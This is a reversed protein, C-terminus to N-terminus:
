GCGADVGPPIANHGSGIVMAHDFQGGGFHASEASTQCAKAQQKQQTGEHANAEGVREWGGLCDVRLLISDPQITM